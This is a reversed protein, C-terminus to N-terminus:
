SELTSPRQPHRGDEAFPKFCEELLQKWGATLSSQAGPSLRGYPCDRFELVTEEGEDRLKWTTISRAPGGFDPSLDGAWQLMEGKQFVLVTGWLLGEGGGWDEYIRGGVKAELVFGRPAEGVYFDLPWWGQIESTLARWARERSARIRIELRIDLATLTPQEEMSEEREESEALERIRLLADAGAAEFPRIWRRHIEQIPVPNLHNWRQRGERRVAVLGAAVLVKLHKMVGYRSMAFRAALDGTTRPGQRLLDLVLRRNPDALAKWVLADRSSPVPTIRM